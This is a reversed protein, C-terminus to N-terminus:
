WGEMQVFLFLSTDASIYFCLQVHIELQYHCTAMSAIGNANSCM